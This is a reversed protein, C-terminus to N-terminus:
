RVGTNMSESAYRAFPESGHSIGSAPEIGSIGTSNASAGFWSPVNM